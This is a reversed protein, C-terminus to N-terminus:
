TSRLPVARWSPCSKQMSWCADVSSREGARPEALADDVGVQEVAGVVDEHGSDVPEVLAEQVDPVSVRGLPQVAEDILPALLQGDGNM